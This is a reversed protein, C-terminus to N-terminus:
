AGHARPSKLRHGALLRLMSWGHRWVNVSSVLVSGWAVPIEKCVVPRRSCWLLLQPTFHFEDTLDHYPVSRLLQLSYAVQGSGPDTIRMGSVWSQLSVLVLNALRRSWPYEASLGGPSLFRSGIIFDYRRKECWQILQALAEPDGQGDGHYLLAYDMGARILADFAVKHSGGYGLNRPNEIVEIKTLGFKGIAERSVAVTRDTSHNDILLVADARDYVAPPIARLTGRIQTEINYCLIFLGIRVRGEAM